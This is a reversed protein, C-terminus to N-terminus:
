RAETQDYPLKGEFLWELILFRWDPDDLNLELQQDIEM